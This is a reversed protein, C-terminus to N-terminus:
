RARLGARFPRLEVAQFSPDQGANGFRQRLSGITERVSGLPEFGQVRVLQHVGILAGDEEPLRALCEIM